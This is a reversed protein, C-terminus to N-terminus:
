RSYALFFHQPVPLPTTAQRPDPRRCEVRMVWSQPSSRGSASLLIFDGDLDVWNDQPIELTSQVAAM